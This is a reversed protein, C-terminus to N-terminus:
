APQVSQSKRLHYVSYAVLLLAFIIMGWESVTPIPVFRDIEATTKECAREVNPVEMGYEDTPTGCIDANNEMYEEVTTEYYYVLTDGPAM